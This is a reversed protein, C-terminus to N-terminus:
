NDGFLDGQSRHPFSEKKHQKMPIKKGPSAIIKKDAFEVFFANETEAKEGSSIIQGDLTTVLSFGRKLIETYSYSTLLKSLFSLKNEM